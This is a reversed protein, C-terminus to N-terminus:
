KREIARRVKKKMDDATMEFAKMLYEQSGVEGFRDRSGIREMPVPRNEALVEAVASGLGNLYNHNEATVIAGTEEACKVILERDIPKCTFMDVVKVHIGEKELEEAADLAESVLLGSAIITADRGERLEIGKGITFRAGDQYVRKVACRPFRLYHVGFIDKVQRMVDVMMARDAIDIITANPVLRMLGMDEFPMHTGGNYAAAIGPDSGMLKVNLKGYAASIFIQDYAKRTIFTGFSHAFPVMGAASMGVAVGVMNAEQVGCDFTREPFADKFGTGVAKMLDAELSVVRADKKGIDVLTSIYIGGLKESDMQRERLLAGKM